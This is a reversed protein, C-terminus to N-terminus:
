PFGSNQRDGPKLMAVPMEDAHMVAERLLAKRLADALSQLQVGCRGVWHALTSGPIALGARQLCDVGSPPV